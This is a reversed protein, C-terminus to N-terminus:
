KPPKAGRAQRTDAPRRSFISTKGAYCRRIQNKKFETKQDKKEVGARIRPANQSTWERVRSKPQIEELKIVARIATDEGIAAKKLFEVSAASNVDMHPFPIGVDGGRPKADRSIGWPPADKSVGRSRFRSLNTRTISSRSQGVWHEWFHSQAPEPWM